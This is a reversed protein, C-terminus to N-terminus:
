SDNLSARGSFQDVYRSAFTELGLEQETAIGYELIRPLLSKLLGSAFTAFQRVFEDGSGIMTGILMQPPPLGCHAFVEPLRMGMNVEVGGCRFVKCVWRHLKQHLESAPRCDVPVTFDCEGMQVIGGSRVHRLASLLGDVPDKLYMLILRGVVADFKGDVSFDRIDCAEFTVNSFGGDSARKRAVELIEPNLDVGVVQGTPGVIQAAQFAVDGAGSGLDLLRMGPAIGAERLVQRTFPGLLDSQLELRQTEEMSRGLVYTPDSQQKGDMAKSRELGKSGADRAGPETSEVLLSAFPRPTPAPQTAVESAMIAALSKGATGSGRLPQQTLLTAVPVLFLRYLAPAAQPTPYPRGVSPLTAM